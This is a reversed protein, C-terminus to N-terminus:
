PEAYSNMEDANAAIFYRDLEDPSLVRDRHREGPLMSVKALSREVKGWEVALKLMRRLVQLERNITSVERGTRTRVAVYAGVNEATIADLRLRALAPCGLLNKVGNRYYELTKFKAESTSEVFPLFDRNAFDELTPVPKKNRIGVEGKALATRHAAEVQEAVRKNTQKTSERIQEGNWNFKYWWNKSTAQKCVM